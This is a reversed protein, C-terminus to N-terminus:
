VVPQRKEAIHCRRATEVLWRAFDPPTASRERKTCRKPRQDRVWQPTRRPLGEKLSHTPEGLLMPIIPVDKSACGVIYLKTAKEARHGFWWQLVPLIWGGFKDREGLRPMGPEKWLRSTAPHEVAGGERRVVEIAWTALLKEEPPATSLHSLCSWLRCPPHAIVPCGGPFTRADRDVDYVDVDPLSKYISQRDAFLIAVTKM